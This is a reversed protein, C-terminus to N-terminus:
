NRILIQLMINWKDESFYWLPSHINILKLFYICLHTEQHNTVGVVSIFDGPLFCLHRLARQSNEGWEFISSLLSLPRLSRVRDCSVIFTNSLKRFKKRHPGGIGQVKEPHDFWSDPSKSGFCPRQFQQWVSIADCHRCFLYLLQLAM